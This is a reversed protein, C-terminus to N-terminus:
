GYATGGSRYNQLFDEEQSLEDDSQKLISIKKVKKELSERRIKYKEIAKRRQHLEHQQTQLEDEAMGRFYDERALDYEVQSKYNLAKVMKVPDSSVAEDRMYASNGALKSHMSHLSTLINVLEAAAQAVVAQQEVVRKEAVRLKYVYVKDLQNLYKLNKNM